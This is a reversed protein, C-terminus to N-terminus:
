FGILSGGLNALSGSQNKLRSIAQDAAIFERLLGERQIALRAQMDAIQGDMTKIQASLRDKLDSIFGSAETYSELASEVSTFVGDTGSFLERLADGDQAVVDALREKDLEITGTITFEIGVQSLRTFVGVGHAGSLAARLSNHLQRLLPERGISAMDGTGAATRQENLFKVATNYAEVFSEIKAELSSSDPAVTIQVTAAPDAKRVTLTVGPVVDEFINSSGTVPINNVLLSADSAQVANDEVSDGITGNANTDTFSVGTGGSLTNTFTFAGDLGSDTSSLVLKYASPGTRVVAATVGVDATENIAEALGQLTVDGAIAVAVGNITLAGGSAVVTTNADPATSASATVQARALSNVVIAYQGAVAQSSTSISVADPHSSTGALGQVAQPDALDGAADLMEQVRNKLLDFSTLQSRIATQRNQIAALPQSAQQMVANLILNFDINNFGSFTIPSSVLSEQDFFFSL